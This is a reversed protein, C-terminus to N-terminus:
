QSLLLWVGSVALVVGLTRMMSFRETRMLIAVPVSLVPALSALTAGLVLPSHSLGYVYVFTGGFAEFFFLPIAKKIQWRPMLLRERPAFIKAFISCLVLASIMRVVSAVVAPLETGARATAYGNTAWAISALVAFFIGIGVRPKSRGMSQGPKESLKSSNVEKPGNLVVTIIGIVTVLLGLFHTQTIEQGLFLYGAGVTWMPFASAIALAGPVGLHRTSWFFLTDGMAYSALMSLSLWQWHSGNIRSFSEIGEWFGGSVMFTTIVFLPLAVLARAFNVAFASNTKSLEAYGSSGIAWTCSAGFACLPGLFTLDNM